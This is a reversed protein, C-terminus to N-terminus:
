EVTAGVYVYHVPSCPPKSHVYIFFGSCSETRINLPLRYIYSTSIDEPHMLKSSNWRLIPNLAM